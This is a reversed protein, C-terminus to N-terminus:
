MIEPEEFLQRGVELLHVLGGMWLVDPLMFGGCVHMRM